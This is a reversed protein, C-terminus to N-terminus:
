GTVTLELPASLYYGTLTILSVVLSWQGPPVAYGLAPVLSATGVLAPLAHTQEPDISLETRQANIPGVYLGVVAGAGDIVATHLNRTNVLTQNHNARNTVLVDLKAFYGSRITLPSLPEVALGVVDAPEGPLQFAHESVRLEKGPFGLAGVQLDM